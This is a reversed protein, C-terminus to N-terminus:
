DDDDSKEVVIANTASGGAMMTVTVTYRGKKHGVKVPVSLIEGNNNGPTVSGAGPLIMGHSNDSPGTMVITGIAAGSGDYLTAFRPNANIAYSLNPVGPQPIYSDGTADLSEFILFRPAYPADAKFSSGSKATNALMTNPAVRQFHTSEVLEATVTAPNGQGGTTLGVNTLHAQRGVSSQFVVTGHGFRKLKGSADYIAIDITGVEGAAGNFYPTGGANRPNPRVHIVKFGIKKARANELGKNKNGGNPTITVELNGDDSVSWNGHQVGTSAAAVIPNQPATTLIINANPALQPAGGPNLFAPNRAYGGGLTIVMKGGAPIQQGFNEPDLSSDAGSEDARMIINFETPEGAVLGNTVVPASVIDVIVNDDDDAFAYQGLPLTFACALVIPRIWAIKRTNNRM